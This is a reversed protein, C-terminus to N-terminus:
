SRFWVVVCEDVWSREFSERVNLHLINNLRALYLSAERRRIADHFHKRSNTAIYAVLYKTCRIHRNFVHVEQIDRFAHLSM